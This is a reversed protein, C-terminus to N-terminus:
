VDNLDELKNKLVEDVYFPPTMSFTESFSESEESIKFALAGNKVYLYDLYGMPVEKVKHALVFGGKDPIAYAATNGRHAPIEPLDEMELKKYGNVPYDSGQQLIWEQGGVEVHYPPLNDNRKSKVDDLNFELLPRGDSDVSISRWSTESTQELRLSTDVKFDSYQIENPHQAPSKPLSGYFFLNSSKSLIHYKAIDDVNKRSFVVLIEGPAIVSVNNQVVDSLSPNEPMTFKKFRVTPKVAKVTKSITKRSGDENYIPQFDDEMAVHNVVVDVVDVSLGIESVGCIGNGYQLEEPLSYM